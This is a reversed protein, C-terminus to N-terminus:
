NVQIIAFAANDITAWGVWQYWSVLTPPPVTDDMKFRLSWSMALMAFAVAQIGLGSASLAGLSTRDHLEPSQPALAIFAFITVLYNIYRTHMWQYFVSAITRDHYIDRSSLPPMIWM